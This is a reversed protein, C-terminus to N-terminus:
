DLLQGKNTLNLRYGSPFIPLSFSEQENTNFGQHNMFLAFDGDTTAKLQEPQLQKFDAPAISSEGELASFYFIQSSQAQIYDLTEKQVTDVYLIEAGIKPMAIFIAVPRTTHMAFVGYVLVGIQIV